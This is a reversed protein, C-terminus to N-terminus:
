FSSLNRTVGFLLTVALAAYIATPPLDPWCIPKRKVFQAYVFISYVAVVPFLVTALPNFQIAAAIRGHILATLARTAGCGPCQLNFLQHLPCQPYFGYSEPPFCLLLLVVFVAVAPPAAARLAKAVRSSTSDTM